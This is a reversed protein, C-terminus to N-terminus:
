THFQDLSIEKEIKTIKIYLIIVNAEGFDKMYFIESLMSKVDNM